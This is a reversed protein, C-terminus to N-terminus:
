KYAIIPISPSRNHKSRPMAFKENAGRIVLSVEKQLGSSSLKGPVGANTNGGVLIYLEGKDGFELGNIGHDHDSVPLNSVVTTIINM